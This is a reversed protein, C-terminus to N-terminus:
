KKKKRMPNNFNPEEENLNENHKKRKERGIKVKCIKVGDLDRGWNKELNVSKGRIKM